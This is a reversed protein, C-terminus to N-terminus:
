RYLQSLNHTYSAPNRSKRMLVTFIRITEPDLDEPIGTRSYASSIRNQIQYIRNSLQHEPETMLAKELAANHREQKKMVLYWNALIRWESAILEDEKAIWEFQQIAEPIRNLEAYVLALNRRWHNDAKDPRIWSELNKAIEEPQDLAVLLRYKRQKWAANSAKLQTISHDYLKLLDKAIHRDGGPKVALYELTTLYRNYLLAEEQNQSNGETIPHKDLYEWCATIVQELDQRIRVQLYLKEVQMWPLLSEPASESESVLRQILEKRVLESKEQKLSNLAKRSLGEKDPIADVLSQYKKTLVWNLLQNLQHRLGESNPNLTYLLKWAEEELGERWPRNLLANFLQHRYHHDYNQNGTKVMKRLFRLHESTFGHSALLRVILSGLQHLQQEEEIGSWRHELLNVLEKWSEKEVVPDNVQVWGVLRQVAPLPLTGAEEMLRRGFGTRLERAEDTRHFRYHTIITSALNFQSEDLAYKRVVAALPALFEEPIAQQNLAIQTAASIRSPDKGRLWKRAIHFCKKVNDLRLLANLYRHHIWNHHPSPERKLLEEYLELSDGYRGKNELYDAHTHHLQEQRWLEWEEKTAIDLLKELWASGTEYDNLTYFLQRLYGVGHEKPYKEALVAHFKLAEDNKGASRLYNLRDGEWRQLAGPQHIAREYVPKLIDLLTLIEQPHSTQAAENRIQSALKYAVDSDMDANGAVEKALEGALKLLEESRRKMLFYRLRLWRLPKLNDTLKEIAEFHKDCEEWQQSAAFYHLLVLRAGLHDKGDKLSQKAEEVTPTPMQLVVSQNLVKELDSFTDQFAEEESFSVALKQRWILM